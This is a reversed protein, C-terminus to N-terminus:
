ASESKSRSTLLDAPTAWDLTQRPRTNIEEAARALEDPTVDRLDMGKPFYDRLLGNMSQKGGRQWPSHADSFVVKTGIQETIKQYLALEKGQDWTLARRLDTPLDELATTFGARIAEATPRGTPVHILIM